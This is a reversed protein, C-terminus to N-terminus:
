KGEALQIAASLSTIVDQAWSELELFLADGQIVGIAHECADVLAKHSNCARVIFAADEGNSQCIAVCNNDASFIGEFLSGAGLACLAQGTNRRYPTPTHKTEM